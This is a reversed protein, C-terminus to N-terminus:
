RKFIKKRLWNYYMSILRTLAIDYIVFVINAFGWFIYIGYKGLDGAENILEADTVFNLVLFYYIVMCFNFVAIKLIWSLTKNKLKEFASKHIPYFGMFAVFLMSAEKSPVVLLSLISVVAYAAVAWKKNIEIVIVALLAGAVAPVAYTLTPIISAFIMIVLSMASIVGGLAVSYSPKRSNNM